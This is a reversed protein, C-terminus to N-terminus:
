PVAKALALLTNAAEILTSNSFAGQQIDTQIQAALAPAREKLRSLERRRDRLKADEENNEIPVFADGKQDVLQVVVYPKAPVAERGPIARREGHAPIPDQKPIGKPRYIRVTPTVELYAACADLKAVDAASIQESMEPNSHRNKWLLLAVADKPSAQLKLALEDLQDSTSAATEM